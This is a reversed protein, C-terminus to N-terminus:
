RHVLVPVSSHTIVKQTQSGLLLAAMGRRGHSAIFILDCAHDEAAQLIGKWPTDTVNTTGQCSIGAAAARTTIADVGIQAENLAEAILATQDISAQVVAPLAYVEAGAWVVLKANLAKALAIASDAAKISLDSGDTPFLICQYM